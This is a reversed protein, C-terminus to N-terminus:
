LSSTMKFLISRKKQNPSFNIKADTQSQRPNGFEEHENVDFVGDNLFNLVANRNFITARLRKMQYIENLYKKANTASPHSTEM